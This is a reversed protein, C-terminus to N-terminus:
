LAAPLDFLVELDKKIKKNSVNFLKHWSPYYEVLEVNQWGVTQLNWKWVVGNTAEIPLVENTTIKYVFIQDDPLLDGDLMERDWADGYGNPGFSLQTVLEPVAMLRADDQFITVWSNPKLTTFFKSSAHYYSNM